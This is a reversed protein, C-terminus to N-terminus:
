ASRKQEAITPNAQVTEATVPEAPVEIGSAEVKVYNLIVPALIMGPIGMLKEGLILGLLTLWIPNRIRDGIIKSNLFYELKHILVLFVLAGLALKPSVTFSIGVIITNSMLNGVVPFLGCLFTVGIIVFRHPLGVAIVFISTLVTNISSIIIQAGMVTVFSRYFARFRKAVEQATLSYINNRVVHTAHDLDVQSNMFISVAVVCGIVVFVFQATAGKAFNVANGLYHMQDKVTDVMLARLSQYDTFPLELRQEEAWTIVQPIVTDAIRPLTVVTQKIFYGLAYAIGLLVVGFLWVAVWRNRAFHLKTLVFYAFLVALLPTALRLWGVAVITLLIFWYSARVPKSLSGLIPKEDM